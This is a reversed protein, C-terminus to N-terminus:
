LYDGPKLDELKRPERELAVGVLECRFPRPVNDDNRVRLQITVGPSASPMHWLRGDSDVCEHMHIRLSVLTWGDLWPNPEIHEPRFTVNMTTALTRTEGPQVTDTATGFPERHRVTRLLDRAPDLLSARGTKRAERTPDGGSGGGGGASGVTVWPKPGPEGGIAVSVVAPGSGVEGSGMNGRSGERLVKVITRDCLWVGLLVGLAFAVSSACGVLVIVEGADM